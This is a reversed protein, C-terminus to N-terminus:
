DARKQTSAKLPFGLEKAMRRLPWFGTAADEMGWGVVEALKRVTWKTESNELLTKWFLIKARMPDAPHKLKKFKTMAKRLLIFTEEDQADIAMFIVMAIAEKIDKILAKGEPTDGAESSFLVVPTEQSTLAYYVSLLLEINNPANGIRAAISALVTDSKALERIIGPLKPQQRKKRV